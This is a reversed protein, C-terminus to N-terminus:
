KTEKYLIKRIIELMSNLDAGKVIIADAGFQAASELVSPYDHATLVAVAQDLRLAKIEAVTAYGDQSPMELDVLVVDPHLAMAQHIADSRNVAEGVVEVGDVLQFIMRLDARVAAHDTVILIRTSENM